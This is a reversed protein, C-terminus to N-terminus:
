SQSLELLMDVFCIQSKLEEGELSQVIKSWGHEPFYKEYGELGQRLYDAGHTFYPNILIAAGKGVSTKVGAIEKGKEVNQYKAIVKYTHEHDAPIFSGGGSLLVNVELDKLKRDKLLGSLISSGTWKIKVAGHFFGINGTPNGLFPLLPGIEIGNWLALDRIKDIETHSNMKYRVRHSAWYGGGCWGLFRGGKNVFERIENTKHGIHVDLESSLAGPVHLLSSKPEWKLPSFQDDHVEIIPIKLGTKVLMNKFLETEEYYIPNYKEDGVYTYISLDTQNVIQSLQELCSKLNHEITKSNNQITNM